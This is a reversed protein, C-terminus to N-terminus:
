DEWVFDKTMGFHKTMTDIADQSDHFLLKIGDSKLNNLTNIFSPTISVRTFAGPGVDELARVLVRKTPQIDSLKGSGNSFIAKLISVLIIGLLIDHMALGVNALRQKNNVIEKWNLTFIDHLTYGISYFLGEIFDGQWKMSPQLEKKEQETLETEPVKEVKILNGQDDTVFRDYYKVGNREMHVFKGQATNGGKKTPAKFWLNYKASLFTQFQLFVLGLFKHNLQSKSEHDYFGYAMDSVEKISARQDSTYAQTIDGYIYMRKEKDWRILDEGGKEFEACMQAYLAKQKNYEPDKHNSNLGYQALRDFRKDKKWDYHLVGNADLEHADLCGDEIMKAIFLTLRNYYDPASQALYMWKSMNDFVGIRSLSANTSTRNLDQNAIGYLRNIAECMTFDALSGQGTFAKGYKGFQQGWIMANAKGVSKMSLKNSGFKLAWARSFNTFMGFTLEKLFSLPRCALMIFSNFGRIPGLIEAAKSEDPDLVPQNSVSIKAQTRAAEIEPTFDAGSDQQSLQMIATVTETLMLANDFHDKRIYNFAVDLALFDLDLSFDYPNDVSDLLKNREFQSMDYANYMETIDNQKIQRRRESHLARPDYTERFDQWKATFFKGIGYDPLHSLRQFSQAKALPLQFYESDNNKIADAVASFNLIEREHKDYTWFTSEDSIKLRYKNIEWLYAKLFERDLETLDNSKDYPNKFMLRKSLKGGESWLLREWIKSYESSVVSRGESIFNKIYDKTLKSVYGTKETFQKRVTNYVIDYYANLQRLTNSPTTRPSTLELGGGIGTIKSGDTDSTPLKGTFPLGLVSFLNGLSIGYKSIRGDFDINVGNLYNYMKALLVYCLQKPDNLDWTGHAGFESNQLVKYKDRMQQLLDHLMKRKASLSENSQEIRTLLQNLDSDQDLDSLVMSLESMCHEYTTPVSLKVIANPINGNDKHCLLNFNDKAIELDVGINEDTEGFPNLISLRGLSAGNLAEPYKNLLTNLISLAEIAKVNKYQSSLVNIDLKAAERETYFKGLVNQEGNILVKDQIPFESLSIIEVIQRGTNRDDCTFLMLGYDALQAFEESRCIWNSNLYKGLKSKLYNARKLNPDNMLFQGPKLEGSKVKAIESTLTKVITKRQHLLEAIYTDIIGGDKTFDEMSTGNLYEGTISSWMRYGVINGKSDKRPEVKGKDILEQKTVVKPDRRYGMIKEYDDKIAQQLEDDYELRSIPQNGIGYKRLKATFTGGRWAIQSPTGTSALLDVEPQAETLSLKGKPMVVPKAYMSINDGPIGIGTLIGRYIGLQLNVENRKAQYWQAYPRSSVKYDVLHVKNDSDVIILDAVGLIGEYDQELGTEENICTLYTHPSNKLLMPMESFIAKRKSEPWKSNIWRVIEEAQQVFIQQLKSVDTYKLSPDEATIAKAMASDDKKLEDEIEKLKDKWKETTKGETLLVHVLNHVFTGVKTHQKELSVQEDFSEGAATASGAFQADGKHQEIYRVRREANNVEPTFREKKGDLVHEVTSFKTGAIYKDPNHKAELQAKEGEKKLELLSDEITDMKFLVNALKHIQHNPDALAATLQEELALLLDEEHMVNSSEGRDNKYIYCTM